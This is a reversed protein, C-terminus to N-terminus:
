RVEVKEIFYIRDEQVFSPGRDRLAAQAGTAWYARGLPGFGFRGRWSALRRSLGSRRLMVEFVPLRWVNTYAIGSPPAPPSRSFDVAILLPQHPEVTYRIAPLTVSQNAPVEFKPQVETLDSASDYPDGAPDRKSVFLGDVYAPSVSSARVTIQLQRGGRAPDTLQQVLCRGQWGPSNLGLSAQFTPEFPADLTTGTVPDSWPTYAYLESHYGAVRYRYSTQPDLGAGGDDDDFTYSNIVVPVSFEFATTTMTTLNTREFRFASPSLAYYWSLRISRASTGVASQLTPAWIEVHGGGSPSSGVMVGCGYAIQALSAM